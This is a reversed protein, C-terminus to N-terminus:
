LTGSSRANWIIDTSSSNTDVQVFPFRGQGVLYHTDERLNTFYQSSVFQPAPLSMRLHRSLAQGGLTTSIQLTLDLQQATSVILCSIKSVMLLKDPPTQSFKIRCSAGNCNASVTEDYYTGYSLPSAKAHNGIVLVLAVIAFQTLRAFM